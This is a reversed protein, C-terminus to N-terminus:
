FVGDYNLFKVGFKLILTHLITYVSVESQTWVKIKGLTVLTESLSITEKREYFPVSRSFDPPYQLNM